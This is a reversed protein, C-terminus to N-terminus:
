CCSFASTRTVGVSEQLPWVQRRSSYTPVSFSPPCRDLLHSFCVTGRRWSNYLRLGSADSHFIALLSSGRWRLAILRLYPRLAFRDHPRASSRISPPGLSDSSVTIRISRRQDLTMGPPGGFAVDLHIVNEVLPDDHLPVSLNPEKPHEGMISQPLPITFRNQDIMQCLVVIRELRAM